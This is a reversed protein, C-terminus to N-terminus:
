TRSKVKKKAHLYNIALVGALIILGFFERTDEIWPMEAKMTAAINEAHHKTLWDLAGDKEFLKYLGYIVYAGIGLLCARPYYKGLFALGCLVASYLYIPIWLWPDPDNYQLTASIVFLICFIINFPKM